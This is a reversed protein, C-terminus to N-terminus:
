RLGLQLKPDNRLLLVKFCHVTEKSRTQIGQLPALSPVAGAVLRPGEGAVSVGIHTALPTMLCWPFVLPGGLITM